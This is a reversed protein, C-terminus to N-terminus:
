KRATRLFLTPPPTHTSLSHPTSLGPLLLTSLHREGPIGGRPLRLNLTVKVCFTQRLKWAPRWYGAFGPVTKCIRLGWRTAQHALWPLGDTQWDTSVWQERIKLVRLNLFMKVQLFHFLIAVMGISGFGVAGFRAAGFGPSSSRTGDRAAWPSM